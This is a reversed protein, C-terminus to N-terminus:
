RLKGTEGEEKMGLADDSDATAQAAQANGPIYTEGRLEALQNNDARDKPFPTVQLAIAM